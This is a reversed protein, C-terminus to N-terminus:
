KSALSMMRSREDWYDLAAVRLDVPLRATADDFHSKNDGFLIQVLYDGPIKPEVVDLAAGVKHFMTPLARDEIRRSNTSALNRVEHEQRVFRHAAEAAVTDGAAHLATWMRAAGLHQSRSNPMGGEQHGVAQMTIQLLDGRWEPPAEFLLAIERDGELISVNGPRFKFFVGYGRQSIGTATLLQMPPKRQYRENTNQESNFNGQAAGRGFPEYAGSVNFSFHQDRRRLDEVSITGAVDSYLETKPWYDVVRLSQQPSEVTVIFEDINGQFTPAIFTSVPIRVRVLRGGMTPREAWSQDLFEAVAVAPADFSVPEPHGARLSIMSLCWLSVSSLVGFSTSTTPRFM